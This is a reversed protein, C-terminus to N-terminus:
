AMVGRQTRQVNGLLGGAYAGYANLAQRVTALALQQRTNSKELNASIKGLDGGLLTSALQEERASQDRNTQAMSALAREVSGFQAIRPRMSDATARANTAATLAGAATSLDPTGLLSNMVVFNTAQTSGDINVQYAFDKTAAAWHGPGWQSGAVVSTVPMTNGHSGVSVTGIADYNLTADAQLAARSSASLGEASAALSTKHIAEYLGIREEITTRGLGVARSLYEQGTAVVERAMADSKLKNSIAWRAGDDKVSTVEQGVALQRAAKDARGRAEGATRVASAIGSSIGLGAIM